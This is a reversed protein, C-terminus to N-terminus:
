RLCFDIEVNENVFYIEKVTVKELAEHVIEIEGLNIRLRNGDLTEVVQKSSLAPSAAIIGKLIMGIGIVETAYKLYLVEGDIADVTLDCNVTKSVEGVLPIKIKANYNLKITNRDKIELCVDQGTKEKVICCVETLPIQLKM